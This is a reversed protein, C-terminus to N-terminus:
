DLRCCVGWSLESFRRTEVTFGLRELAPVTDDLLWFYEDDIAEVVDNLGRAAFASRIENREGGSAFMLDGFVALGRPALSDRIKRFLEEKEDSELHHVAYTSVVRDCARPADFYGLLDAQVCSVDLHRCKDRLISLMRASTDVAVISRARGLLATLNGTGAGLELVTRGDVKSERAVWELLASYGARIPPSEDAVDSDYNPADGDHNFRDQHRSRM